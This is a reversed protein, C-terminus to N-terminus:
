RYSQPWFASDNQSLSFSANSDDDDNVYSVDVHCDDDDTQILIDREQEELDM